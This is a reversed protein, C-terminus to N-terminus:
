FIDMEHRQGKFCLIKRFVKLNPLPDKGLESWQPTLYFWVGDMAGPLTLGRVLLTILVSDLVHKQIYYFFCHMAHHLAGYQISRSHPGNILIIVLM